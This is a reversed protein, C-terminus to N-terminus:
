VAEQNRNTVGAAMGIRILMGIKHSGRCLNEDSLLGNRKVSTGSNSNYRITLNYQKKEIYEDVIRRGVLRLCM